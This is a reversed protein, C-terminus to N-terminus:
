LQSARSSQRPGVAERNPNILGGAHRPALTCANAAQKFALSLVNITSPVLLSVDGRGEVLSDDQPNTGARRGTPYERRPKARRDSLLDITALGPSRIGVGDHPARRGLGYRGRSLPGLAVRKAGLAHGGGGGQHSRAIQEHLRGM